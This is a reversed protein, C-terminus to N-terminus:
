IILPEKDGFAIIKEVGQALTTFQFAPVLRRLLKNVFINDVKEKSRKQSRIIIKKHLLSSIIGVIERFSYSTGSAINVVGDFNKFVFYSILRVVDDVYIFERKESGDGWLSIETKTQAIHLFGAPNYSLFGEGPGYIAPPRLVTIGECYGAEHMKQLLNESTYKAIGYYSRPQIPTKESIHTNNIDEGYVAASSMYILRKIPHKELFSAFNKTMIINKLFIDLNDGRNPKIASLMIVTTDQTFLKINKNLSRSDLLNMQESSVGFLECKGANSQIYL